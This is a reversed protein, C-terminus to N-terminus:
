KLLEMMYDTAEKNKMLSLRSVIDKRLGPDKEQRALAVLATANGQMFLGLVAAKKVGPDKDDRYFQVLADGTTKSEMIALQRVAAARLEASSEGRAAAVLRERDGALMFAQLVQRKVDPDASSAYVEALIGRSEQGGFLALYRVARLQLDPNGQGRAVRALIERAQPSGGQALLFLAQEKIKPSGAGKLLEEAMPVARQPDNLMISRLAMAKLDEDQAAPSVAQGSATQMAMALAKADTLWRSSPFKKELEQLRALAEGRQGLRSLAYAQWYLAGEVRRGGLQAVKEYARVAEDYRGRDLARTAREYERTAQDYERTARELERVQHEVADTPSPQQAFDPLNLRDLAVSSVVTVRDLDALAVRVADLSPALDLDLLPPLWATAAVGPAPPAVTPRPPVPNVPQAVAPAAGLVLAAGVIFQKLM